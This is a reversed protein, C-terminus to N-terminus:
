YTESGINRQSVPTDSSETPKTPAASAQAFTGERATSEVYELAAQIWKGVIEGRVQLFQVRHRTNLRM